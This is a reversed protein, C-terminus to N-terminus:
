TQEQMNEVQEEYANDANIFIKYMEGNMKGTFQYCLIEQFTENEILAENSSSVKFSPSLEKKAQAMTLKPKALKRDKHGFHYDASKIDTVEGNDLAINLMVSEPYLIVGGTKHAYTIAATGSYKSYNVPVMDTFHHKALFDQGAEEAGQLDLVPNTVTRPSYYQLLHGGKKSYYLMIPQNTEPNVTNVTYTNYETGKGHEKVDMQGGGPVDLFEAAKRHIEEATVWNGPLKSLDRRKQESMISAGWDVEEYGEVMKNMAKFGDIIVNDTKEKQSALASEVDMWRLNKSLISSQVKSIEGDMEKSQKYLTALTAKESDSMPKNSLDRVSVQYSFSALNHLLKQTKDLPLMALPLLTVDNRAQNTVRWINIMQKRYYDQSTPNVATINGLQKQIQDLHFSLDHFSRQYQNEAKILITNKERNEQYGWIGLGIFGVLFVPFLVASIRKYM